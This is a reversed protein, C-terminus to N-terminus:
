ILSPTNCKPVSLTWHKNWGIAALKVIFIWRFELVEYNQSFNLASFFNLVRVGVISVNKANDSDSSVLIGFLGADSHAINVATIRANGGAKAAAKSLPDVGAGRKISSGSGLANRLVAYTFVDKKNLRLFTM